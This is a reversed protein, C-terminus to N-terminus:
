INKSVYVDGWGSKTKHPCYGFHGLAVNCNMCLVRYGLPYNNKKLWNYISVVGLQKRQATGGGEIHDITLFEIMTEGCCACRPPSGSYAVLVELKLRRTYRVNALNKSQRNSKAWAQYKEKHGYYYNSQSARRKEKDRM